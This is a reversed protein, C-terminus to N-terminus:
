YGADTHITRAGHAHLPSRRLAADHMHSLHSHLEEHSQGTGVQRGGKTHTWGGGHQISVNSGSPHSYAYHAATGAGSKRGQAEFGSRKLTLHMSGVDNSLTDHTQGALHRQLSKHGTGSAVPHFAGTSPRSALHRWEGSSHTTLLHGSHEPHSYDKLGGGGAGKESRWGANRAIKHMAGQQAHHGATIPNNTKYDHTGHSGVRALRDHEWAHYAAQQEHYHSKAPSAAKTAKAQHWRMEAQHRKAEDLRDDDQIRARTRSTQGYMSIFPAVPQGYAPRNQGATGDRKYDERDREAQPYAGIADCALTLADMSTMGSRMADKVAGKFMLRKDRMTRSDGAQVTKPQEIDLKPNHQPTPGKGGSGLYNSWEQTKGQHATFSFPDTKDDRSRARRAKRKVSYAIAVAQKQPKGNKIETAINRSFAARSKGQELPM